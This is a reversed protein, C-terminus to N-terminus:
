PHALKHQMPCERLQRKDCYEQYWRAGSSIDSLENGFAKYFAFLDIEGREFRQWAGQPGRRTILTNIWDKPM